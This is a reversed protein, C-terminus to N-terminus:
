RTPWDGESEVVAPGTQRIEGDSSIEITLDGGPLSVVVEEDVFGARRLAAAAAAAGTGCARTAGAGREWTQLRIRKRNDIRVFQANIRRPFAPAHELAGGRRALDAGTLPADILAVAHPNGVDVLWVSEGACRWRDTHETQELRAADAGVAEPGFRAWGMTSSINPSDPSDINLQRIGADTSIMFGLPKGTRAQGRQALLLGVARLGNGCMECPSGDANIVRMSAVTVWESRAEGPGLIIIGDAGVGSDRDCVAKALEAWQEDSWGLADAGDFVCFDNGLGSVRTYRV